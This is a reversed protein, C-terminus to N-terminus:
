PMGRERDFPIAPGPQDFTPFLSDPNVPLPSVARESALDPLPGAAPKAFLAAGGYLLGSALLWSAYIRLPIPFWPRHFARLTLTVAGVIWLGVFVGLRPVMPDHLTPDTLKTTVALMAGIALGAPLALWKRVAGPAILVLGAALSAVPITLYFHQAAGRTSLLWHAVDPYFGFGAAIGGLFVAAGVAALRLPLIALAAGLGVLPLLQAVSLANWLLWNSVADQSPPHRLVFQAVFLGGALAVLPGSWRDLVARM